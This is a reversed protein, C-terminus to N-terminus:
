KPFPPLKILCFTAAKINLVKLFPPISKFLSNTGLPLLTKGKFIAELPLLNKWPLTIEMSPNVIMWLAREYIGKNIQLVATVFTIFLQYYSQDAAEKIVERQRKRERQRDRERKHLICLRCTNYVIKLLFVDMRM